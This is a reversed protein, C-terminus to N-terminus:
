DIQIIGRRLSVTVAATRDTVNLKAFISKAHNRAPHERRQLINRACRVAFVRPLWEDIARQFHLHPQSNGVYQDPPATRRGVAKPVAAVDDMDTGHCNDM